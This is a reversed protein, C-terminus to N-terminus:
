DGIANPTKEYFISGTPPNKLRAVKKIVTNKKVMYSLVLGISICSIIM